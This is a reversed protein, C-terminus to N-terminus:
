PCSPPEQLEVGEKKGARILKLDAATTKSVFGSHISKVAWRTLERDWPLVRWRHGHEIYEMGAYDVKPKQVVVKDQPLQATVADVAAQIAPYLFKAGLEYGCDCIVGVKAYAACQSHHGAGGGHARNWLQNVAMVLEAVHVAVDYDIPAWGEAPEARVLRGGQRRWWTNDQAHWLRDEPQDLVTAQERALETQVAELEQKTVALAQLVRAYALTAPNVDSEM